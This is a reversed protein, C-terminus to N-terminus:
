RPPAETRVQQSCTRCTLAADAQFPQQLLMTIRGAGCLAEHRWRRKVAAHVTTSSRVLGARWPGLSM